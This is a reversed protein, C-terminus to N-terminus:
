TVTGTCCELKGCECDESEKMVRYPGAGTATLHWAFRTWAAADMICAGITCGDYSAIDIDLQVVMHGLLWGFRDGVIHWSTGIRALKLVPCRQKAGYKFRDADTSSGYDRWLHDVVRGFGSYRTLSCVMGRVEYEQEIRL